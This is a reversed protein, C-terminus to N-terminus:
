IDKIKHKEILYYTHTFFNEWTLYGIKEFRRNKIRRNVDELAKDKNQYVALIKGEQSWRGLKVIYISSM